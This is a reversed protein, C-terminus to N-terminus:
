WAIRTRLAEAGMGQASRKLAAGIDQASASRALREANSALEARALRRNVSNPSATMRTGDAGEGQRNSKQFM